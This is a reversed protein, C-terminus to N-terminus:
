IGIIIQNNSSNRLWVLIHFFYLLEVTTFLFWGSLDDLCFWGTWFVTIKNWKQSTQNQKQSNDSRSEGVPGRWPNMCVRLSTRDQHVMEKEKLLSLRLTKAVGWCLGCIQWGFCRWKYCDARRWSHSFNTQSCCLLCANAPYSSIM